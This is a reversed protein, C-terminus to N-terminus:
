KAALDMVSLPAAPGGRGIYRLFVGDSERYWYDGHWLLAKLGSPTLRVHRATEARGGIRITETAKIEAALKTISMAVPGSTGISWFKVQKGGASAFSELGFQFAQNWPLSGANFEKRIAEGKHLGTLIIKEGDRVARIDTKEGPRIFTWAITAESEDLTYVQTEAPAGEGATATIIWGSSVAEKVVNLVLIKQGTKEKYIRTEASVGLCCTLVLPLFLFKKMIRLGRDYRVDAPLDLKM